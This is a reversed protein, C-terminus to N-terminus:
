KFLLQRTLKSIM